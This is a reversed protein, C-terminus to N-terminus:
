FQWHRAHLLALERGARDHGSVSVEDSGISVDLHDTSQNVRDREAPDVVEPFGFGLAIHAGAVEVLRGGRFTLSVGRVLRGTVVAPRTLRARGDVDANPAASAPPSSSTSCPLPLDSLDAEVFSAGHRHPADAVARM